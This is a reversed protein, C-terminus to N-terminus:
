KQMESPVIQKPHKRDAIRKGLTNVVFLIVSAILAYYPSWYTPFGDYAFVFVVFLCYVLFSPVIIMLAFNRRKRSNADKTREM